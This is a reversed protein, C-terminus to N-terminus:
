GAFHMYFPAPEVPRHLIVLQYPGGSTEGALTPLRPPKKVSPDDVHLCVRNADIRLVACFKRRNIAGALGADSTSGLSKPRLCLM